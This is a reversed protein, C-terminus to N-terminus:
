RYKRVGKKPKYYKVVRRDVVIHKDEIPQTLYLGELTRIRSLAVYTLARNSRDGINFCVDELTMGQSSHITVAYGLRLPYQKIGVYLDPGCSIIFDMLPIDGKNTFGELSCVVDNNFRLMGAGIYTCKSGNVLGKRVDLNRTLIYIASEKFSLRDPCSKSRFAKTKELQEKNPTGVNSYVYKNNQKTRRLLTHVALQSHEIPFEAIEDFRKINHSEVDINKFFLHTLRKDNEAEERSILRKNLHKIDKDTHGGMRIRRLVRDYSRDSLQRIPVNLHYQTIRLKEWLETTFVYKGGVPPLQCFDGVFVVQIGGMIKGNGMALRATSEMQKFVKDTLMSIEDVVLIGVNRWREARPVGHLKIFLEYDDPDMALKKMNLGCFSHITNAVGPMGCAAIGTSATLVVEIGKRTAVEILKGVTYSKGVGGPGTILSNNGSKVIQHAVLYSYCEATKCRNRRFVRRFQKSVMMCKAYQYADPIHSSIIELVDDCLIDSTPAM